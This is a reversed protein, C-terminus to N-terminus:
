SNKSRGEFIRQFYGHGYILEILAANLATLYQDIFCEIAQLHFLKVEIAEGEKFDFSMSGIIKCSESLEETVLPANHTIHNRLISFMRITEVWNELTTHQYHSPPQLNAVTWYAKTVKHLGDYLKKRRWKTFRESWIADWAESKQDRMAYARRELKYESGELLKLPNHSYFIENADFIIDELIGFMDTFGYAAILEGSDIYRKSAQPGTWQSLPVQIASGHVSRITNIRLHKDETVKDYHKSAIEMANITIGWRMYVSRSIDRWSGINETSVEIWKESPVDAKHIINQVNYADAEKWPVKTQPAFSARARISEIAM